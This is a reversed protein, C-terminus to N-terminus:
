GNSPLTIMPIPQWDPQDSAGLGTDLQSRVSGDSNMVFLQDIQDASRESFVIQAGDPSWALTSSLGSGLPVLNRGDAYAVAISQDCDFGLFEGSPSWTPSSAGNSGCALPLRV